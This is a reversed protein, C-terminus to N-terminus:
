AQISLTMWIAETTDPLNILWPCVYHMDCTNPSITVNYLSEKFILLNVISQLLWNICLKLTSFPLHKRSTYQVYRYFYCSENHPFFVLVSYLTLTRVQTGTHSFFHSATLVVPQVKVAPKHYDPSATVASYAPPGLTPQKQLLQLITQIDSLMQSELRLFFCFPVSHSLCVTVIKVFRIM